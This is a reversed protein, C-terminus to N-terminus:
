FRSRKSCRSARAAWSWPTLQGQAFAAAAAVALGAAEAAVVEDRDPILSSPRFDAAVAVPAERRQERAPNQQWGCGHTRAKQSLIYICREGPCWRKKNKAMHGVRLQESLAERIQGHSWDPHALRCAKERKKVCGAIHSQLNQSPKLGSPAYACDGFACWLSQAPAPQGAAPAPAAAAPAPQVGAPAPAAVAPAPQPVAGGLGVPAAPPDDGLAVAVLLGLPDGAPPQQM